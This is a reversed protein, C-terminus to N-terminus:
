FFFNCVSLYIWFKFAKLCQLYAFYLCRIFQKKTKNKIITERVSFKYKAFCIIIKDLEDNLTEAYVVLSFNM